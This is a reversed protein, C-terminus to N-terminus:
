TNGDIIIRITGAPRVDRGAVAPPPNIHATVVAVVLLLLQTYIVRDPEAQDGAEAMRPLMVPTFKKTVWISLLRSPKSRASIGPAKIRVQRIVGMLLRVNFFRRMSNALLYM